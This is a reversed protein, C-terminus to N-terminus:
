RGCHVRVPVMRQLRDAAADWEWEGDRVRVVWPVDHGAQKVALRGPRGGPVRQFPVEFPELADIRGHRDESVAAALRDEWAVVDLRYVPM